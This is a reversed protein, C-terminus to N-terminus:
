RYNWVLKRAQCDRDIDYNYNKNKKPALAVCACWWTWLVRNWINRENKMCLLMYASIFYMTRGKTIINSMDQYIGKDPLILWLPSIKIHRSISPLVLRRLMILNQKLVNNYHIYKFMYKVYKHMFIASVKKNLKLWTTLGKSDIYQLGFFWIERLGITKVM